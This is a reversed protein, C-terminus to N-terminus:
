EMRNLALMYYLSLSIGNRNIIQGTRQWSIHYRLNCGIHHTDQIAWDVGVQSFAGMNISRIPETHYEQPIILADTILTHYIDFNSNLDMSFLPGVALSPRIKGKPFTYLLGAMTNLSSVHANAEMQILLGPNSRDETYAYYDGQFYETLLILALKENARPLTFRFQLGVVMDTQKGFTYEQYWKYSADSAFDMDSGYYSPFDLSSRLVGVYVGGSILIAQSPKEYIICKEGDCTYEHYERTLEILSKHNFRAKDVKSQIEPCDGFTAKMQGVYLNSKRIYAVGDVESEILNNTLETMTGDGSELFYRDSGEGRYYYLNSIGNVLFELFVEQTEEKVTIEKSIYYKGEGTFRYAIIEGPAFSKSEAKENSRFDCIRSNRLDGRNDIEGYITDYQHTIYFGPQFNTQAKTSM